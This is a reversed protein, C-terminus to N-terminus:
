WRLVEFRMFRQKNLRFDSFFMSKEKQGKMSPEANQKHEDDSM